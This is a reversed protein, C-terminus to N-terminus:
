LKARKDSKPQQRGEKMFDDTFGNLGQLFTNWVKNNPILLVADGVKQILVDNGSFQFEKPLRVAQSQGNKFIKAIAHTQSHLAVARPLGASEERKEKGTRQATQFM